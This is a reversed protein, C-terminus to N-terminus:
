WGMRRLLRTLPRRIWSWILPSKEAAITARGRMGPRIPLDQANLKMEAVFVSADERLEARPNIRELTGSFSRGSFADLRATVPMGAAVRHIEEEPIAIEAILGDLPAVEFLVQGREVPAGISRKLDGRLVMGAIPSKVSLQDFRLELLALNENAQRAELAHIGAEGAEGRALAADRRIEAQALEASKAAIELEIAHRDLLALLQGAEVMQGPEVLSKALVGEQPSVIYRRTLPEITCTAPTRDAIPLFLLLAAAIVLPITVYRQSGRFPQRLVSLSKAFKSESRVRRLLGLFAPLKPRLARVEAVATELQNASAAGFILMAVSPTSNPEALPAAFAFEAEAALAFSMIPGSEHNVADRYVWLQDEGAALVSSIAEAAARSLSTSNSFRTAASTAVIRAGGGSSREGICVSVGLADGLLLALRQYVAVISEAAQCAAVCRDALTSQAVAQRPTAGWLSISAAALQLAGIWRMESESSPLTLGIVEPARGRFYLGVAIVRAQAAEALPQLALRGKALTEACAIAIQPETISRADPPAVVWRPTALEGDEERAAHFFGIARDRGALETAADAIADSLSAAQTLRKLLRVHLDDLVHTVRAASAEPRKPIPSAQVAM